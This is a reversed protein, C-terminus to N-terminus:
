PGTRRVGLVRGGPPGGAEALARELADFSTLFSDPRETKILRVVPDLRPYAERVRNLTIAQFEPVAAREQQFLYSQFENVVLYPDATNYGKLDLYAIWVAQEDDTLADWAAQCADRYGPLAFFVGHFAEHTVLLERLADTSERSFSLM